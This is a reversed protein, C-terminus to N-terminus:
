VVLFETFYVRDITGTALTSNLADMIDPKLTKM